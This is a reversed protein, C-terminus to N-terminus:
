VSPWGRADDITVWRPDLHWSEGGNIDRRHFRPAYVHRHNDEHLVNSLFGAWYSFTSNALILRDSGVLVGLDSVPGANGAPWMPIAKDSTSLHRLCWDVDDSVIRVCEVPADAGALNLASSVYAEVDFGYLHRWKDSYFDGRRVNVTVGDVDAAVPLSGTLLCDRSFSELEARSFSSGFGQYDELDRRDRWSLRRRPLTLDQLAPFVDMWLAASPAELVWEERGRARQTHAHLYRYLLNGFGMSADTWLVSRGHRRAVDLM